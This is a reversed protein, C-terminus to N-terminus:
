NSKLTNLIKDAETKIDVKNVSNIVFEKRGFMKNTRIQGSFIFETGLVDLKEFFGDKIELADEMKMGILNLATDRFFVSRVNATGDDIVGSLILMFDPEQEGHEACKFSGNDKKIRKNCQPCMEYFAATEFLQVLAARVEHTGTEGIKSITTRGGVSAFSVEEIEPLDCKELLKIGGRRSLRVEPKGQNDKTYAGFIEIGMGPKLKEVHDCQENWLSMRITGTGDTLMVNAVRGKQGKYVFERPEFVRQIRVTINLNRVGPVVNKVELRRNTKEFLDLGLEKAIIYAAGEKSVLGSLESQKDVIQINIDEKPLGTKDMIKLVITDFDM